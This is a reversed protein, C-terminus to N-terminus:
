LFLSLNTVNNAKILRFLEYGLEESMNWNRTSLLICWPFIGWTHNTPQVFVRGHYEDRSESRFSPSETASSAVSSSFCVHSAFLERTSSSSAAVSVLACLHRFFSSLRSCNQNVHAMFVCLVIASSNSTCYAAHNRSWLLPAKIM